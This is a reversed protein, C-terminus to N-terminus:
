KLERIAREYDGPTGIDIFYDDSRYGYIRLDKLNPMFLDLEISFQEPLTYSLMVNKNIIYIGGNVVGSGGTARKENFAIVRNGENTVVSGYRSRDQLTLLAITIDAGSRRHLEELANINATFLTDGNAVLIEESSCINLARKIAGGTGLPKEERSCTVKAGRYLSGFHNEITDSLHGTSLIFHNVGFGLLHDMIYELFPRGNVPAMPKPIAEIRKKLRTGFGGALIIAERDM